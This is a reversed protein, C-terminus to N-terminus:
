NAVVDWDLRCIVIMEQLNVRLPDDSLQALFLIYINRTLLFRLLLYGFILIIVFWM